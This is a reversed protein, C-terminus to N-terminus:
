SLRRRTFVGGGHRRVTLSWGPPRSAVRDCRECGSVPTVRHVTPASGDANFRRVVGAEDDPSRLVRRAVALSARAGPIIQDDRGLIAKAADHGFMNRLAEAHQRRRARWCWECGRRGPVVAPGVWVAGEDAEVPLYAVRRDELARPMDGISPEASGLLVAVAPATSRALLHDLQGYEGDLEVAADRAAHLMIAAMSRAWAEFAVVLLVPKVVAPEAM